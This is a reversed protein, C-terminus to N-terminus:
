SGVVLLQAYIASSADGVLFVDSQLHLERGGNQSCVIFQVQHQEHHASAILKHGVLVWVYTPRKVSRVFM